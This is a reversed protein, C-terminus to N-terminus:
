SYWYCITNGLQALIFHKDYFENRDMETFCWAADKWYLKYGILLYIPIYIQSCYFPFHSRGLFLMIYSTYFIVLYKTKYM